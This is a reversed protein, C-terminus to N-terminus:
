ENAFAKIEEIHNIIMQAKKKGFSFPYPRRAGSEELEHITITPSGKYETIEVETAPPAKKEKAM